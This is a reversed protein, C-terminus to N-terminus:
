LIRILAGIAAFSVLKHEEGNLNPQTEQIEDQDVLRLDGMHVSLLIRGPLQALRTVPMM